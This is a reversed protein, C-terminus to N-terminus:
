AATLHPRLMSVTTPSLNRARLMDIIVPYQRAARAAEIRNYIADESLRLVARCYRFMSSFGAGEYLRRADFEGLHVLLAVTAEREASALRVLEVTLEGDSLQIPTTIKM